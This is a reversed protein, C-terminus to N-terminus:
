YAGSKILDELAERLQKAHAARAEFSGPTLQQLRYSHEHFGVQSGYVPNDYMQYEWDWEMLEQFNVFAEAEAANKPHKQLYNASFASHRTGSGTRSPSMTRELSSVRDLSLTRILEEEQRTDDDPGCCSTLGAPRRCLKAFNVTQMRAPSSRTRSLEDDGM